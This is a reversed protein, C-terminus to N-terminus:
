QVAFTRDGFIMAQGDTDNTGIGGLAGILHYGFRVQHDEDAPMDSPLHGM